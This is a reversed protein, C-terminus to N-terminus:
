LNALVLVYRVGIEICSPSLQGPALVAGGVWWLGPRGGMGGALRPSAALFVLLEVQSKHPPPPSISPAFCPLAPVSRSHVAGMLFFFEGLPHVNMHM